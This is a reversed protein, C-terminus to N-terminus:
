SKNYTSAFDQAFEEIKIKGVPKAKIKDYDKRMNGNHISENLAIINEIAHKPVGNQELKRSMEEISLIKWQLGPKGIAKGLVEAVENAKRDDSAVYCIKNGITIDTLERAAVAAIDSPAVMVIKDDGGYNSAIFGSYKIMNIFGFLNYYMFGARLHTISINPITNLINETNHSGLIYGTGKDLDAGWSSLHVIKKIGADIIATAYSDAVDKYHGIQDPTTYDPPIMCFIADVGRFVIKLFLPDKVSGVAVKAGLLRLDEQKNPDRIIGTVSHGKKVLEEILPKGVNGLAGTVVIKM